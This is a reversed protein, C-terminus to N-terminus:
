QLFGEIEILIELLKGKQLEDGLFKMAQPVLLLNMGTEAPMDGNLRNPIFIFQLWQAFNSQFPHHEEFCNVWDPVTQQWLGRQKMEAKLKLILTDM